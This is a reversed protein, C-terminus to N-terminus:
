PQKNILITNYYNFIEETRQIIMSSYNGTAINTQITGGGSYEEKMMMTIMEGEADRFALWAKQAKILIKKDESSLLKLLKNYYLNMLKDYGDAHEGAAKNMGYTTYDIAVKKEMILFLRHKAVEFAIAETTKDETKMTKRYEAVEKDAEAVIKKLIDPTVEKPDNQSFGTLSSFLFLTIFIHKM